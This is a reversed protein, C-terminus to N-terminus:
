DFGRERTLPSKISGLHQRASLTSESHSDNVGFNGPMHELYVSREKEGEREKEIKM